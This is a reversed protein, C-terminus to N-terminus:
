SATFDESRHNSESFMNILNDMKKLYMYWRGVGNHDLKISSRCKDKPMQDLPKNSFVRASLSQGVRYNCKVFKADDNSWETVATPSSSCSLSSRM